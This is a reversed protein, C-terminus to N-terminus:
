RDWLPMEQAPLIKIYKLAKAFHNIAVLPVKFM